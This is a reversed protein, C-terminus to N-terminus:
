TRGYSIIINVHFWIFSWYNGQWVSIVHAHLNMHLFDHAYINIHM